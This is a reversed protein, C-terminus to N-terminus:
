TEGLACYLSEGVPLTTLGRGILVLKGGGEQGIREQRSGVSDEVDVVEFVDRVGQIMKTGGSITLVRGKLRHISFNPPTPSSALAQPHPQPHTSSSPPLTSEWLLARLWSELRPLQPPSLPPLPITMTSITPDLHSHGKEATNLGALGDYAHLDLLFGELQPVQGYQTVHIKALGNIARVREEVAGLGQPSVADSKNIVIVDAHSIQLHATTMHHSEDAESTEDTSTAPEEDLSLLINKADILTVIGDLYISSGLGDDVWFLPALNGPDALGSTELIVYDFAGRRSILSEIAAVGSDKISCCICGNALELWEEVQQGNQSVTLAKEIDASDGFENLIVAIKKGHQAKLVYNVLTTKGAGLYGTVITLPVKALNSDRLQTTASRVPDEDSNAVAVDVLAPVEEEKEIHMQPLDGM